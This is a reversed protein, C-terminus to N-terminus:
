FQFRIIGDCRKKRENDIKKTIYSSVLDVMDKKKQDYKLHIIPENKLFKFDECYEKKFLKIEIQYDYVFSTKNRYKWSSLDINNTNVIIRKEIYSNGSNVILEYEKDLKMRYYAMGDSATLITKVYNGKEYIDIKINELNQKSDQDFTRFSFNFLVDNTKSYGLLCFNIMLLILLQSTKKM